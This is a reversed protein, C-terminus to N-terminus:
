AVTQWCPAHRASMSRMFRRSPVVRPSSPKAPRTWSRVGLAAAAGTGADNTCSGGLGIVIETCDAQIAHLILEGTGFTTTLAPNRRGEVLPLGATQAMEIIATQGHRAYRATLPEFYPGKVVVDVLEAASAAVFCDITGEGGDAVPITVTECAPYFAQVREAIIQCVDLSSM